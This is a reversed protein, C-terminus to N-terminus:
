KREVVYVDENDRKMRYKERAYRELTKADSTLSKYRKEASAIEKQLYAINEETAKLQQQRQHQVSWSNEDFFIMWVAFAAATIVFKNTIFRFFKNNM